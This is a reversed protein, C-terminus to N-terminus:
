DHTSRMGIARLAKCAGTLCAFLPRVHISIECGDKVHEVPANTETFQFPILKRMHEQTRLVEENRPEKPVVTYLVLSDQRIAFLIPANM